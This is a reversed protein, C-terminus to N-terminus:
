KRSKWPWIVKYFEGVLRYPVAKLGKKFSAIGRPTSNNLGGIDFWKCGSIKAYLIAEWLLVANAQKTRGINDSIGILYTSTDGSGVSVLVGIPEALPQDELYAFFLNFEWSQGEQIACAKLLKNTIGSFGKVNQLETYRSILIDLSGQTIEEKNVRVGLKIGKRMQNRWKGDFSKLLADDSVLLSILGSAFPETTAKKLGLGKLGYHCDVTDLMEPSIKILWWRQRRAECLLLRLVEIKRQAIDDFDTDLLMPGRNIRALGGLIPLCRTLVQVLAIPQNDDNFIAFRHPIWDSSREKAEGYGWSQLLSHGSCKVWYSHWESQSVQRINWNHLVPDSLLRTSSLWKM